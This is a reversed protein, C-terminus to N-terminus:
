VAAVSVATLASIALAVRLLAVVLVLVPSLLPRISLLRITLCGAVSRGRGGVVGLRVVWLLLMACIAADRLVASIVVTLALRLIARRLVVLVVLGGWLVAAVLLLRM